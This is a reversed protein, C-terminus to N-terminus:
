GIHSETVWRRGCARCERNYRHVWGGEARYASDTRWWPWHTFLCLLYRVADRM